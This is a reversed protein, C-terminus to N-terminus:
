RHVYAFQCAHMHLYTHTCGRQCLWMKKRPAAAKGVYTRVYAHMYANMCPASAQDLPDAPQSETNARDAAMAKREEEGRETEAEAKKKAKAKAKKKANANKAKPKVKGQQHAIALTEDDVVQPIALTKDDVAQPIALTKDDAAQPTALTKDDAAQPTALTKDDDAAQPTALTQDCAKEVATIIAEDATDGAEPEAHSPNALIKAISTLLARSEEMRRYLNIDEEEEKTKKETKQAFLEEEVKVRLKEKKKVRAKKNKVCAVKQQSCRSGLPPPPLRCEALAMEELVAEKSALEQKLAIEELVMQQGLAMEEKLRREMQRAIHMAEAERMPVRDEAMLRWVAEPAHEDTTPAIAAAADLDPGEAIPRSKSPAAANLDLYPCCCGSSVGTSAPAQAAAAGPPSVGM